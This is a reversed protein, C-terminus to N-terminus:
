GPEFFIVTAGAFSSIGTRIWLAPLPPLGHTLYVSFLHGQFNQSVYGQIVAPHQGFSLTGHIREGEEV